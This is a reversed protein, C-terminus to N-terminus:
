IHILSLKQVTWNPWKVKWSTILGKNGYKANQTEKHFKCDEAVNEGSCNPNNKWKNCNTTQIERSLLLSPIAM